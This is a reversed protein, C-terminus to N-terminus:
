SARVDGYCLQLVGIVASAGNRLGACCDARGRRGGSRRGRGRAAPTADAASTDWAPSPPCIGTPPRSDRGTRSPAARPRCTGCTTRPFACSTSVARRSRPSRHRDGSPVAVTPCRRIRRCCSCCCRSGAPRVRVPEDVVAGHDVLGVVLPGVLQQVPVRQVHVGVVPADEGGREFSPM